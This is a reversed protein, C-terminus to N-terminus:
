RRRSSLEAGLEALAEELEPDSPVDVLEHLSRGGSLRPSRLLLDQDPDEAM